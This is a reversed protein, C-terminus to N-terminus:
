KLFTYTRLSLGLVFVSLFKLSFYPSENKHNQIISNLGKQIFKWKPFALSFFNFYYIARARSLFNISQIHTYFSTDTKEKSSGSSSRIVKHPYKSVETTKFPIFDDFGDWFNCNYFFIMGLVVVTFYYWLETKCNYFISRNTNASSSSSMCPGPHPRRPCHHPRTRKWKM